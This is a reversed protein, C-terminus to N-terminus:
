GYLLDFSWYQKEAGPLRARRKGGHPWNRRRLERPKGATGLHLHAGRDAPMAIVAVGYNDNARPAECQAALCLATAILRLPPGAHGGWVLAVSVAAPGVLQNMLYRNDFKSRTLEVRKDIKGNTVVTETQVSLRTPPGTVFPLYDIAQDPRGLGVVTTRDVKAAADDRLVHESPM